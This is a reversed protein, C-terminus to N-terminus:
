PKVVGAAVAKRMTEEEMLRNVAQNDGSDVAKKWAEDGTAPTM